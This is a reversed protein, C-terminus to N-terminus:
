SPCLQCSAWVPFLSRVQSGPPIWCHAVVPGVSTLVLRNNIWGPLPAQVAVNTPNRLVGVFLHTGYTVAALSVGGQLAVTLDMPSAIQLGVVIVSSSRLAPAREALRGATSARRLELELELERIRRQHAESRHTVDLLPRSMESRREDGLAEAECNAATASTM